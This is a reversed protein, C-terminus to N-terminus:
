AGVELLSEDVGVLEIHPGDFFTTDLLSIDNDRDWDAGVRIEYEMRQQRYLFAATGVVVGIFYLIQDRAWPDRGPIYPIADVAISPKFRHKTKEYPVTTVPPSKARLAEHEARTRHGCILSHDHVPLVTRMLVQLDPHLQELVGLSRESYRNM